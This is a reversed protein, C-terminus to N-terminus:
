SVSYAQEATAFDREADDLQRVRDWSEQIEDEVAMRAKIVNVNPNEISQLINLACILKQHTTIIEYTTEKM